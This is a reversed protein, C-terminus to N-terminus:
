AAAEGSEAPAFTRAFLGFSKAVPSAFGDIVHQVPTNTSQVLSLDLRTIGLRRAAQQTEYAILPAIGRGRYEPLVALIFFRVTRIRPVTRLLRLWGFPLLRGNVGLLAENVDPLTLGFGVPEGDLEAIRILEPVAFPKFKTARQFFEDWGAPVFGWVNAFAGNYLRHLIRAEEVWRGMDMPRVRVGRAVGVGRAAAQVLRRIAPAPEDTPTATYAHYQHTVRYGAAELLRRYYPPNYPSQITPPSDFGELLIGTEDHPTLNVPGLLRHMGQSRAAAEAAALLAAASEPDDACEFFGFLATGPAWRAAFAPDVIVAIRGTVQGGRSAVFRRVWRTRLSANHRVSWRQREDMRLPPVWQPDDRYLAYPLSVFTRHARGSDASEVLVAAPTRDVITQLM